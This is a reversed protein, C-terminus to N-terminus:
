LTGDDRRRMTEDDRRRTTEDYRRCRHEGSYGCGHPSHLTLAHEMRREKDATHAREIAVVVCCCGGCSVFMIDYGHQHARSGGSGGIGKSKRERIYPMRIHGRIDRWACIVVLYLCYRPASMANMRQQCDSRLIPSGSRLCSGADQNTLLSHFGDGAMRTWRNACFM